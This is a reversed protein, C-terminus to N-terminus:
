ERLGKATCVNVEDPFLLDDDHGRRAGALVLGSGQLAGTVMVGGSGKSNADHWESQIWQCEKVADRYADSTAKLDLLNKPCQANRTSATSTGFISPREIKFQHGYLGNPLLPNEACGLLLFPVLWVLRRM